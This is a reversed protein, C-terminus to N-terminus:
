GLNASPLLFPLSCLIDLETLRTGNLPHNAEIRKLSDLDLPRFHWKPSPAESLKDWGAVPLEFEGGSRRYKEYEFTM